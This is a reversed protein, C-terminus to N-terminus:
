TTNEKLYKEIALKQMKHLKYKQEREKMRNCYEIFKSIKKSITKNALMREDLMAKEYRMKIGAPTNYIM